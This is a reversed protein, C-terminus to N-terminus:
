ASLIPNREACRYRRLLRSRIRRRGTRWGPRIQEKLRHRTFHSQSVESNSKTEQLHLSLLSIGRRRGGGASGTGTGTGRGRQPPGRGGVAGSGPPRWPRKGGSGGASSSGSQGRCSGVQLHSPESKVAETEKKRRMQCTPSPQPCAPRKCTPRLDFIKGTKKQRSKVSSKFNNLHILNIPTLTPNVIEAKQM